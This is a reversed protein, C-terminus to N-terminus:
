FSVALYFDEEIIFTLYVVDVQLDRLQATELLETDAARSLLHRADGVPYAPHAWLGVM